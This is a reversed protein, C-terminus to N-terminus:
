SHGQRRRSIAAVKAFEGVEARRVFENLSEATVYVRGSINITRLWGRKRFRWATVPAIGASRCWRSLSIM